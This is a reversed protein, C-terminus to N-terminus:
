TLEFNAFDADPSSGPAAFCILGKDRLVCEERRLLLEPRGNFTVYTGNTSQDILVLSSGQREIRAHHRSARRDHIVVDSDVDRGMSLSKKRDDLIVVEDGYYLRLREGPAAPQGSANANDIPMRSIVTTEPTTAEFIAVNKLQGSVATGLDRTSKKLVPSLTTRTEQCTLIQGPKALGALSLAKNVPEGSYTDAEETLQGSSFGIRIALEVGSVPPLDAVRAQMEVAAFYADDACGFFAMLENSVSKINRGGFATVAREMRKLCRDVARLAETSGLKEHLRANGCVCAFLVSRTLPPDVITLGTGM